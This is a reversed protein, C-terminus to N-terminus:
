QNERMVRNLIGAVANADFEPVEVGTGRAANAAADIEKPGIDSIHAANDLLITLDGVTYDGAAMDTLESTPLAGANQLAEIFAAFKQASDAPLGSDEATEILQPGAIIGAALALIAAILPTSDSSLDPLDADVLETLVAGLNVNNGGSFSNLQAQTGNFLNLDVDGAVGNVRGSGTRQWFSLQDWAGVPGPAQAQYAALWLPMDSFKQSNNMEGQWFFKYTYIMPTRGSLRKLESTFEQIWSELQAASKGEAVEIDLVPPLTQGPVLALQSAFHAAQTKASMKPRAYHYAGVKLGAAAAGLTDQVFYDNVYDTGETAKVFAFSQGDGKANGWNIPAGGPHQHSAVDIGRPSSPEIAQAVSMNGCVIAVATMFAIIVSKLARSSSM